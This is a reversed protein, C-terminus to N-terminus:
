ELEIPNYPTNKPASTAQGDEGRITVKVNPSTSTVFGVPDAAFREYVKNLNKRTIPEFDKGAFLIDEGNNQTIATAEFTYHGRSDAAKLILGPLGHLKWPGESLPIETTFWAEYDRGKFRCTAKRCPYTLITLTDTHLEWVPRENEEECRFRNMGIHELLTVKGSPYNKFVQYTVKAVYKKFIGMLVDQSAGSALAETALSDTMYKSFSYFQSVQKGIRLIMTEEERREEKLTDRLFTMDYQVSFQAKDIPETQVPANSYVVIQAKALPMTFLVALVLTARIITKM